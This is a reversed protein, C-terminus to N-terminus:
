NIKTLPIIDTNDTVLKEKKKELHMYLQEVVMQQFLSLNRWQTAQREEKDFILQGYKYPDVEPSEIRNWHDITQNKVLKVTNTVIAKYHTKLNSDTRGSKEEEINQCSNQTKQGEM